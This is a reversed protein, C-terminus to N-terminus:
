IYLLCVYLYVYTNSVTRVNLIKEIFHCSLHSQRDGLGLFRLHKVRGTFMKLVQSGGTKQYRSVSHMDNTSEVKGKEAEKM